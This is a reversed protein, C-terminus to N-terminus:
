RRTTDAKGHHGTDLKHWNLITLYLSKYRRRLDGRNELALILRQMESSGMAAKMRSFEDATPLKLRTYCYSANDKLWTRFAAYGSQPDSEDGFPQGWTDCELARAAAMSGYYYIAKLLKGAHETDLHPMVADMVDMHLLLSHHAKTQAGADAVAPLATQTPTNMITIHIFTIIIIVTIIITIVVAVAATVVITRHRSPLMCGRPARCLVMGHAVCRAVGPM